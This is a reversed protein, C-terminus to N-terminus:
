EVPSRAVRQVQDLVSSGKGTRGDDGGFAQVVVRSPPLHGVPVEEHDLLVARRQARELPAPVHGPSLTKTEDELSHKL